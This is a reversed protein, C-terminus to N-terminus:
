KKRSVMWVVACLLTLSIVATNRFNWFARADPKQNEKALPAPESPPEAPQDEEGRSIPSVYVEPATPVSQVEAVVADSVADAVADVPATAEAPANAAVPTPPPPFSFTSKWRQFNDLGKALQLSFDLSQKGTLFPDEPGQNRFWDAETFSAYAGLFPPDNRRAFMIPATPSQATMHCSSCSSLPNDVPGNVRGRRGLEPRATTQLLSAAIPNLWGEDMTGGSATLDPDNGWSLGVPLMRDWPTDGPQELSKDYVFTGFVWGTTSDARKDRVGIDIQLLRMTLPTPSRSSSITQQPPPGVQHIMAEWEVSDELFPVDAKTAHTFLLKISVTGEPFRPPAAMPAAPDAWTQGFVYGGYKNYLGVAWNQVKRAQQDHLFGIPAPRESTLGHIPERGQTDFHMWPAHFWSEAVPSAMPFRDPDWLHRNHAYAYELIAQMYQSAQVPDKFDFALWPLTLDEPPEVTPYDQNAHFVPGTWGTPPKFRSSTDYQKQAEDEFPGAQIVRCALVAIAMLSCLRVRM